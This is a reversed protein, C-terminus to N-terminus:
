VSPEPEPAPKHPLQTIDQKPPPMPVPTQISEKKKKKALKKLEKRSLKKPEVKPEPKPPEVIPEPKPPEVIPEPKPPEVIPEPKPPEVIPEPRPPEVIPEPISDPLKFPATIPEPKPPEIIPEVKPPEVIPEPKPPEVIPEVKPEEKKGLIDDLSPLDAADGFEKLDNSAASKSNVSVSLLAGFSDDAALTPEEAKREPIMFGGLSMERLKRELNRFSQEVKTMVQKNEAVQIRIKGLFDLGQQVRSFSDTITAFGSILEFMKVEFKTAFDDFRNKLEEESM